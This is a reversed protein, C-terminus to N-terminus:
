VQRHAIAGKGVFPLRSETGALRLFNVVVLFVLVEFNHKNMDEAIRLYISSTVQESCIGVFAWDQNSLTATRWQQEHRVGTFRGSRSAVRNPSHGRQGNKRKQLSGHTTRKLEHAISKISGLAAAGNHRCESRNERRVVVFPTSLRALQM